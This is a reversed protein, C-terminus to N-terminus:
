QQIKVDLTIKGDSGAEGEISVVKILGYKGPNLTSPKDSDVQFVLVNNAALKTVSGTAAATVAEWANVIDEGNTLADFEAATVTATKFKTANRTGWKAAVLDYIASPYSAPAALSAKDSGGFYYGFDINPSVSTATSEIDTRSYTTGTNTSFFTKSTKDGTPASLLVTTYSNIPTSTKTTTVDLQAARSQSKEDVAIFSLFASEGVYKEVFTYKIEKKWVSDISSGRTFEELFTSDTGLEIAYRLANFGEKAEVTVTFTVEDGVEGSISTIVNDEADTFTISPAPGTPETPDCSTLYTVAGLALVMSMLKSVKRM